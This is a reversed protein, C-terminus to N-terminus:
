AQMSETRRVGGPRADRARLRTRRHPPRPMSIGRWKWLNFVYLCAFVASMALLGPQGTLLPYVTWVTLQSALGYWWGAKPNRGSLWLGGVSVAAPVFSWLAPSGPLSVSALAQALVPVSSAVSSTM